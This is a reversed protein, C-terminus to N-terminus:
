AFLALMMLRPPSDKVFISLNLKINNWPSQKAAFNFQNPNHCAVSLTYAKNARTIMVKIERIIVISFRRQIFYGLVSVYLQFLRLIEYTWLKTQLPSFWAHIVVNENKETVNAQFRGKCQRSQCKLYVRIGRFVAKVTWWLITPPRLVWKTANTQLVFQFKYHNNWILFLVHLFPAFTALRLLQNGSVLLNWHQPM